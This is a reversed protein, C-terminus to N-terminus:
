THALNAKQSQGQFDAGSPIRETNGVESHNSPGSDANLADCTEQPFTGKRLQKFDHNWNGAVLPLM